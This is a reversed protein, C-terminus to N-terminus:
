VTKTALEVVHRIRAEEKGATIKSIGKIRDKIKQVIKAALEVVPKIRAEKKETNKFEGKDRKSDGLVGMNLGRTTYKCTEYLELLRLRFPPSSVQQM